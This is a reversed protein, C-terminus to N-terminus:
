DRLEREAERRRERILEDIVAVRNIRRQDRLNIWEGAIAFSALGLALGTDSAAQWLPDYVPDSFPWWDATPNPRIFAAVVGPLAAARRM